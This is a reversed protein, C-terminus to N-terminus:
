ANGRAATLALFVAETAEKQSPFIGVFIANEPNKDPDGIWSGWGGPNICQRVFGVTPDDDRARASM